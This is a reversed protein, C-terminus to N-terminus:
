LSCPILHYWTCKHHLSPLHALGQVLQHQVQPPHHLGVSGGFQLDGWWGGVAHLLTGCVGVTDHEKQKGEVCSIDMMPQVHEHMCAPMWTHKTTGTTHM